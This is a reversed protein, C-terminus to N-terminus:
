RDPLLPRDPRVRASQGRVEQEHARRRRPLRRLSVPHPDRDPRARRRGRARACRRARPAPRRRHRPRDSGRGQRHQPDFVHFSMAQPTETAGYFNVVRAGPAAAIIDTAQKSRLADGGSFVFRLSALTERDRRGACLIRSLQPTVHAHTIRHEALWGYLLAPDLVSAPSPIHLEAGTSLPVFVDRLIPDHGLGSLMSFRCRADVDFTREYWDIFHVLPTHPTAICKPVGTTGSTFLLYAIADAGVQDLQSAEGHLLADVTELRMVSSPLKLPASEEVPGIAVFRGPHLVDLLLQVREVPYAADLVAFTLGARLCALMAVVLEGSRRSYLAVVRDDGPMALLQAALARSARELQAYTWAGRPHVIATAEPREACVALFRDFIRATSTPAALPTALDPAHM